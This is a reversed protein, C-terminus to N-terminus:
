KLNNILTKYKNKDYKISFKYLFENTGKSYKKEFSEFNNLYIQNIINSLLESNKFFLINKLDNYYNFSKKIIRDPIEHSLVFTKIGQNLFDYVSTGDYNFIGIRVEKLIKDLKYRSRLITVDKYKKKLIKFFKDEHINHTFHPKIYIYKHLSKDLQKLLLLIKSFFRNNDNQRDFPMYNLGKSRLVILIVNKKSSSKKKVKAHFNYFPINNKDNFNGWCFFKSATRKEIYYDSSIFTNYNSGHQFVYYQSGKNVNIGSYIKFVEDREFSQGTIIKKPCSPLNLKDIIKIYDNFGEYLYIPLTKNLLKTAIDLYFNNKVDVKIEKILNQSIYKELNPSTYSLYSPLNKLDICLKLEQFPRMGTNCIFNRRSNKNSFLSLIKSLFIKKISKETSFNCNHKRFNSKKKYIINKKVGFYDLIHSLIYNNWNNNVTLSLFDNTDYVRFYNKNYENIFYNTINKEKIVKEYYNLNFRLNSLFYYLWKGFIIEWSRKQLKLNHYDNLDNSLIELIIQYSKEIKEYNLIIEDRSLDFSSLFKFDSLNRFYKKRSNLIYNKQSKDLPYDNKDDLFLYSM